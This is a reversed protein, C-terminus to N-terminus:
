CSIRYLDAGTLVFPGAPPESRAPDDISPVTSPPGSWHGAWGMSTGTITLGLHRLTSPGQVASIATKAVLPKTPASPRAPAQGTITTTVLVVLTTILAPLRRTRM